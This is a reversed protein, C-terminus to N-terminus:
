PKSTPDFRPRFSVVIVETIPTETPPGPCTALAGVSTRPDALLNKAQQHYLPMAVSVQACPLRPCSLPTTPGPMTRIKLQGPCSGKATATPAQPLREYERGSLPAPWVGQMNFGARQERLTAIRRDRGCATALGSQLGSARERRLADGRAGHKEALGDYQGHRHLGGPYLPHSHNGNEGHVKDNPIQRLLRPTTDVQPDLHWRIAQIDWASSQIPPRRTPM